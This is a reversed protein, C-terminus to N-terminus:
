LDVGIRLEVSRLLRGIKGAVLFAVEVSVSSRAVVEKVLVAPGLPAVLGDVMRRPGAPHHGMRSAVVAAGARM